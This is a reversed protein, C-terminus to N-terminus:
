NTITIIVGLSCNEAM